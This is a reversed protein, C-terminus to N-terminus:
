PRATFSGSAIRLFAGPYVVTAAIVLEQGTDADGSLRADCDLVWAGSGNLLRAWTPASGTQIQGDASTALLLAGANDVTGCPDALACSAVLAGPAADGPDPRTGAYLHVSGAGGTDLTVRLAEMMNGSLATSAAIM